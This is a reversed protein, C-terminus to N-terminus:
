DFVKLSQVFCVLELEKYNFDGMSNSLHIDSCILM